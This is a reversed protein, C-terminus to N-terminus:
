GTAGGPRPRGPSPSPPGRGTSRSSSCRARVSTSRSEQAATRPSRTCPCRSSSCGPCGTGGRLDLLRNTTGLLGMAARAGDWVPEGLYHTLIRALHHWRSMSTGALATTTRAGPDELEGEVDESLLVEVGDPPRLDLWGLEALNKGIGLSALLDHHCTRDGGPTVVLEGLRPQGEGGRGVHRAAAEATLRAAGPTWHTDTRYYVEEAAREAIAERLDVTDCGKALMADVVLSDLEPRAEVGPPLVELAVVAKRPVPLFVTREVGLAALRRDVAKFLAGTLAGLEADDVEPLRARPPSFLWGDRGVIVHENGESFVAYLALSYWPLIERRVRSTLRQDREVLAALSGDLFRANRRLAEEALLEEGVPEPRPAPLLTDIAATGYLAGFFVVLVLLAVWRGGRGAPLRDVEREDSPEKSHQM